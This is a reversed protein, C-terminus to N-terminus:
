FHQGHRVQDAVAHLVLAVHAADGFGHQGRAVAIEAHDGVRAVDIVILVDRRTRPLGPVAGRWCEDADMRVAEGAVDEARCGAIAVLQDGLRQLWRRLLGRRTGRDADCRGRIEADFGGLFGAGERLNMKVCRPWSSRSGARWRMTWCSLPMPAWIRISRPRCSM